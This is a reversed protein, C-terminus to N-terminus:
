VDPAGEPAYPLGALQDGGLNLIALNRIGLGELEVVRSAERAWKPLQTWVRHYGPKVVAGHLPGATALACVETAREVDDALVFVVLHM